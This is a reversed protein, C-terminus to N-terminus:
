ARRKQLVELIRGFAQSVGQSDELRSADQDDRDRSKRYEPGTVVHNVLTKEPIGTACKADQGRLHTELGFAELVEKM